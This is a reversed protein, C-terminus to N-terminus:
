LHRSRPPRMRCFEVVLVQAFPSRRTGALSIDCPSQSLASNGLGPFTVQGVPPPFEVPPASKVKATSNFRMARAPPPGPWADPVSPERGPFDLPPLGSSVLYASSMVTTHQGDLAPRSFPGLCRHARTPQLRSPQREVVALVRITGTLQPTRNGRTLRRRIGLPVSSMLGPAVANLLNRPCAQAPTGTV